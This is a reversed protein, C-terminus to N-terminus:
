QFHYQSTYSVCCVCVLKRELSRMSAVHSYCRQLFVTPLFIAILRHNLPRRTLPAVNTGLSYTLATSRALYNPWLHYNNTDHLVQLFSWLELSWHTTGAIFMLTTVGLMVRHSLGKKASLSPDALTNCCIIHCVLSEPRCVLVSSYFNRLLKTLYPVRLLTISV